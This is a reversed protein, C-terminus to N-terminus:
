LKLTFFRSEIDAITKATVSRLKQGTEWKGSKAHTVTPSNDNIDRYIFATRASRSGSKPQGESTLQVSCEIPTVLLNETQGHTLQISSIAGGNGLDHLITYYPTSLEIVGKFSLGGVWRRDEKVEYSQPTWGRSAALSSLTLFVMVLLAILLARKM